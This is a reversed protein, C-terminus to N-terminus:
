RNGGGSGINGLAYLLAGILFGPLLIVRFIPRALDGPVYNASFLALLLSGFCLQFGWGILRARWEQTMTKKM